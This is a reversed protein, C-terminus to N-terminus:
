FGAAALAAAEMWGSIDSSDTTKSVTKLVKGTEVEVLRLDLRMKGGIVLYGGFMMYRAGVLKGVRLRTQEDALGSSGIRLEELVRVMRAREVVTYIGKRKLTEAIQAALLEGVETRAGGPSVDEVEWVALGRRLEGSVPATACSSLTLLMLLASAMCLAM